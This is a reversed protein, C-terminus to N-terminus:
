TADEYINVTQKYLLSYGNHLLHGLSAYQDLLVCVHLLLRSSICYVAVKTHELCLLHLSLIHQQHM